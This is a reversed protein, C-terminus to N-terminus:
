LGLVDIRRNKKLTRYQAFEVKLQTVSSGPKHLGFRDALDAIAATFTHGSFDKDSVPRHSDCGALKLLFMGLIVALSARRTRHSRVTYRDTFNKSQYM